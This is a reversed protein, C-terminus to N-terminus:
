TVPIRALPSKYVTACRKLQPRIQNVVKRSYGLGDLGDLLNQMTRFRTSMEERRERGDGADPSEGL